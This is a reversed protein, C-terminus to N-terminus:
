ERGFSSLYMHKGTSVAGYRADYMAMCTFEQIIPGVMSHKYTDGREKPALRWLADLGIPSLTTSKTRDVAPPFLTLMETVDTLVRKKEKTLRSTQLESAREMLTCRLPEFQEWVHQWTGTLACWLAMPTSASIWVSVESSSCPAKSRLAMPSNQCTVWRATTGCVSWRAFSTPCSTLTGNRSGLRTMRHAQPPNQCLMNAHADAGEKIPTSPLHETWASVALPRLYMAPHSSTSLSSKGSNKSDINVFTPM